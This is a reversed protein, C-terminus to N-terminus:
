IKVEELLEDWRIIRTDRKGYIEILQERVWKREFSAGQSTLIKRLDVLDKERFFMMKFVALTEADWIMIKQQRLPVMRRRAKAQEYFPITPLFVDLRLGDYNVRCFGHEVLLKATEAEAVECGIERLLRICQEPQDVPLFLTIDVDMTSRPETWYGLALAGGFAYDFGRAALIPGLKAAVDTPSLVRENEDM